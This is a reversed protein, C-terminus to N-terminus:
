KCYDPFNIVVHERAHLVVSRPREASGRASIVYRGAQLVLRYPGGDEQNLVLWAVTRGRESASVVVHRHLGVAVGVCPAAIGSIIGTSQKHHPSPNHHSSCGSVAAWSIALAGLGAMYRVFLSHLPSSALTLPRGNVPLAPRTSPM